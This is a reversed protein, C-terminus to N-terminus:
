GLSTYAWGNKKLLISHFVTDFAKTFDLYVVVVANGENMSCRGKLLLDREDILVQRQYVWAPQAQDGAQGELPM